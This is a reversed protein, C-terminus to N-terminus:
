EEGKTHMQIGKKSTSTDSAGFAECIAEERARMEDTMGIGEDHRSNGRTSKCRLPCKVTM